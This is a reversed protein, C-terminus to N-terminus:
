RIFDTLRSMTLKDEKTENERNQIENVISNYITLVGALTEAINTVLDIQALKESESQENNTTLDDSKL